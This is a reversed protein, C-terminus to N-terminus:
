ASHDDACLWQRLLPREAESFRDPFTALTADTDTVGLASALRARLDQSPEFEGREIKAIATHTCDAADALNRLSLGATERLTQLWRGFHEAM